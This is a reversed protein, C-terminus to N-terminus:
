YVSANMRAPLQGGRLKGGVWASPMALVILAIPYWRPGFAAGANWTAVTGALSIVVGVGGLVLAHAIPRDPAFRAAIYGGVIGYVTRYVTALLFLMDSMPEGAPPFIGTAHLLADTATSLVFVALLGALVAGIRRLVLRSNQRDSM